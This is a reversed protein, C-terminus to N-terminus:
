RWICKPLKGEELKKQVAGILEAFKAQSDNDFQSATPSNTSAPSSSSGLPSPYTAAPAQGTAAGSPFGPSAGSSSGAQAVDAKSSPDAPALLTPSTIGPPPSIDAVPGGATAGSPSPTLLPNTSVAPASGGLLPPSTNASGSSTARPSQTGPSNLGPIQVTPPSLFSLANDPQSEPKQWMNMYMWYGAAALVAMIVLTKLSNM